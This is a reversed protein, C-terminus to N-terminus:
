ELGLRQRMALIEQSRVSDVEEHHQVVVARYVHPHSSAEPSSFPESTCSSAEEPKQIMSEIMGELPDVVRIRTTSVLPLDTAQSRASVVVEEEEPWEERSMLEPSFSASLKKMQGNTQALRLTLDTNSLSDADETAGEVVSFSNRPSKSKSNQRKTFRSSGKRVKPQGDVNKLSDPDIQSDEEKSEESETRVVSSTQTREVMVGDQVGLSVKQVRVVESMRDTEIDILTSQIADQAEQTKRIIKKQFESFDEKASGTSEQSVVSDRNPRPSAAETKHSESSDPSIDQQSIPISQVGAVGAVGALSIDMNGDVRGRKKKSSKKKSQREEVMETEEFHQEIAVDPTTQMQEQGEADFSQGKRLLEKKNKKSKKERKEETVTVSTQCWSSETSSVQDQVTLSEKQSVMDRKTKKIKKEKKKEGTESEDLSKGRNLQKWEKIKEVESSQVKSTSNQVVVEEMKEEQYLKDFSDVANKFDETEEMEARSPRHAAVEGCTNRRTSFLALSETEAAVKALHQAASSSLPLPEEDGSEQSVMSDRNQKIRLPLPRPIGKPSPVVVKPKGGISLISEERRYEVRPSSSGDAPSKRGEVPSDEVLMPSKDEGVEESSKEDQAAEWPNFHAGEVPSSPESGVSPRPTSCGSNTKRRSKRDKKSRKGGSTVGKPSEAPLDINEVTDQTEAEETCSNKIDKTCGKDVKSEKSNQAHRAPRVAACSEQPSTLQPVDLSDGSVGSAQREKKKSSGLSFFEKLDRQWDKIFNGRKEKQTSTMSSKSNFDSTQRSAALSSKRLPPKPPEFEETNKNNTYNDKDEKPSGDIDFGIVDDTRQAKIHLPPSASGLIHDNAASKVHVSPTSSATFVEYDEQGAKDQCESHSETTEDSEVKEKDLLQNKKNDKKRTLSSFDKLDQVIDSIAGGNGKNGRELQNIHEENSETAIYRENKSISLSKKHGDDDTNKEHQNVDLDTKTENIEVGSQRVSARKHEELSEKEVKVQEKEEEINKSALSNKQETEMEIKKASLEKRKREREQEEEVKKAAMEKKQNERELAEEIKKAALEKKNQESLERLYNERSIKDNYSVNGHSDTIGVEEFEGVEDVEKKDQDDVNVEDEPKRESSDVEKYEFGPADMMQNTDRAPPQNAPISAHDESPKVGQSEVHTSCEVHVEEKELFNDSKTESIEAQSEVSTSMVTLIEEKEMFNDSKTEVVTTQKRSSGAENKESKKNNTKVVDRTPDKPAAIVEKVGQQQAFDARMSELDNIAFKKTKKPSKTKNDFSKTENVDSKRKQVVNQNTQEVNRDADKRENNHVKGADRDSHLQRGDNDSQVLDDPKASVVVTERNDRKVERVGQQKAFDSRMNELENAAFKKGKGKNKPSKPTKGSDGKSVQEETSKGAITSNGTSKSDSGLEIKNQKNTKISVNEKTESAVYESNGNVEKGKESCKSKKGTSVKPDSKFQEENKKSEKELKKAVAEALTHESMVEDTKVRITSAKSNSIDIKEYLDEEEVPPIDKPPHPLGPHSSSDVVPVCVPGAGRSITCEGTPEESSFDFTLQCMPLQQTASIGSLKRAFSLTGTLPQGKDKAQVLLTLCNDEFARFFYPEKVDGGKRLTSTPYIESTFPDQRLQMVNGGLRVAIPSSHTIEVDGSIVLPRFGQLSQIVKEAKDDTMCYVRLTHVGARPFHERCFVSLRAQYPVLIAEEYLRNALTLASEPERQQDHIVMLWFTGSVKTSFHVIDQCLELPTSGTVDQWTARETSGTVSCLLRITAASAKGPLCPLPISVFIPEHFKRKRPEVAVMRSVEVSRGFAAKVLEPPISQTQLGVKIKKKVANKPFTARLRPEIDLVVKGGEQGVTRVDERIRSIIAFYKPFVSTLIRIIRGPSVELVDYIRELPHDEVKVSTVVDQYIEGSNVYDSVHEVWTEGDESRLIVTEREAGGTSAFHPIEILVPARFTEGAPSMEVIRSALAEREMFPPPYAMKALPQYRCNVRTPQQVAGPPIVVRMGWHRHGTMAGGRADVLFSVLFGAKSSPLTGPKVAIEPTPYSPMKSPQLVPPDAKTKSCCPSCGTSQDRM